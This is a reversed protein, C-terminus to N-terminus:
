ESFFVARVEVSPQYENSLKQMEAMEDEAMVHPSSKAPPPTKYHSLEPFPPRNAPLTPYSYPSPYPQFTPSPSSRYAFTQQPPYHPRLNPQPSYETSEQKMERAQRGQFLISHLQRACRTASVHLFSQSNQCAVNQTVCLRPLIRTVARVLRNCFVM